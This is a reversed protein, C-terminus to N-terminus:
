QQITPHPLTELDTGEEVVILHNLPYNPCWYQCESNKNMANNIDYFFGSYNPRWVKDERSFYILQWRM